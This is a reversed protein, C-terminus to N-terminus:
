FSSNKLNRHLKYKYQLKRNYRHRHFTNRYKSKRHYLKYDLSLKYPICDKKSSSFLKKNLLDFDEEINEKNKNDKKIRRGSWEKLYKAYALPIRLSDLVLTHVALPFFTKMIHICKDKKTSYEESFEPNLLTFFTNVLGTGVVSIPIVFSPHKYAAYYWGPYTVLKITEYAAQLGLRTHYKFIEGLHFRGEKLYTDIAGKTWRVRQRLLDRYTRPVKTEVIITPFEDVSYGNEKLIYPSYYGVSYGQRQILVTTEMDDGDHRLSHKKLAKLLVKADFIGGAGPICRMKGRKGLLYHTARDWTYEEKQAKELLNSNNDILPVDKLGMASWNMDRMFSIAKELAKEPKDNYGNFRLISDDDQIVIYDPLIGLQQQQELYKKISGIKQGNIKMREYVINDTDHWRKLIHPSKDSSCDDIFRSIDLYGEKKIEELIENIYEESNYVPIIVDISINNRNKVM